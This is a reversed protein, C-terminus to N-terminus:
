SALLQPSYGTAAFLCGFGVPLTLSSASVASRGFRLPQIFRLLIRLRAFLQASEGLESTAWGLVLLQCYAHSLLSFQSWGSTLSTYDAIHGLFYDDKFTAIEPQRSIIIKVWRTARRRGRPQKKYLPPPGERSLSGAPTPKAELLPNCM